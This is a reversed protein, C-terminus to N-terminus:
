SETLTSTGSYYSGTTEVRLNNQVHKVGSIDEVIDEARRKESRSKVTGTLTIENDECTVTIASADISSDQMLRENADELIREKSRTYGAPGKGRHDERQDMQRRRAADDDGFWSMLEDSARDFFGREDRDYQRPPIRNFRGGRDQDSRYNGSGFSNSGYRDAGRGATDRSQYGGGAGYNDSRGHPSRQQWGRSAYDDGSSSRDYDDLGSTDGRYGGGPRGFDERQFNENHDYGGTFDDDAQWRQSERARWGDDGQQRESGGSFQEPQRSRSGQRDRNWNDQQGGSSRYRNDM